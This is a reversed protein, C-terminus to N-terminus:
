ALVKVPATTTKVSTVIPDDGPDVPVEENSPKRPGAVETTVDKVGVSFNIRCSDLSRTDEFPIDSYTEGRWSLWSAFGDPYAASKLASHQLAAARMAGAYTSALRRSEVEDIDSVIAIASVAWSVEYAGVGKRKAPTSDTGPSLILVLPLQDPPWKAFQSAVIVGKPRAIQGPTYGRSRELEALYDPLWEALTNAMAQEVEEPTIIREFLNTDSM